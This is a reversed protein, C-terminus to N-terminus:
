GRPGKGKPRVRPAGHGGRGEQGQVGRRRVPAAQAGPRAGARDHGPGGARGGGPHRRAPEGRDRRAVAPGWARGGLPAAQEWKKGRDTPNPGVAERATPAKVMAGDISQWSWAIGEMEDYEALGARWLDMFFGAREWDLFYKHISSSSGYVVKPLSKWQCGTRLVRVIGEFVLRPPKEKRGAGPSRKYIKGPDRGKQPVLPEVRVWFEDSVEWSQVRM